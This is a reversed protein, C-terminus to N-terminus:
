IVFISGEEGEGKLNFGFDSLNYLLVKLFM